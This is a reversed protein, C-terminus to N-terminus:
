QWEKKIENFEEQTLWDRGPTLYYDAKCGACTAKRVSPYASGTSILKTEECGPAKCM